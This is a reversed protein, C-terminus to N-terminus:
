HAYVRGKGLDLRLGLVPVAQVAPDRSDRGFRQAIFWLSMFVSMSLATFSADESCRSNEKKM